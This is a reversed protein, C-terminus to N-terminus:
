GHPFRLYNRNEPRILGHLAETSALLLFIIIGRPAVHATVLEYLIFCLTGFDTVVIVDRALKDACGM